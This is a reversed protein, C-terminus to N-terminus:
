CEYGKVNNLLYTYSAEKAYDRAGEAKITDYILQYADEGCVLKNDHRYIFSEMIDIQINPIEQLILINKAADDPKTTAQFSITVEENPHVFIVM